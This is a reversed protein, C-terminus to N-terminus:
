NEIQVSKAPRNRNALITITRQKTTKYEAWMQSIVTQEENNFPIKRKRVM